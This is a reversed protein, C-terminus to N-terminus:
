GPPAVEDDSSSVEDAAAVLARALAQAATLYDTAELGVIRV